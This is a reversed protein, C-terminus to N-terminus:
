KGLKAKTKAPKSAAKAPQDTSFTLCVGSPDLVGFERTGWPKVALKGNPHIVGKHASYEEYLTELDDVDFRCMTQMAVTKALKPEVACLHVRAGDRHVGAYNEGDRFTEKFGLKQTYFALSQAVDACPLVPVSQEIKPM